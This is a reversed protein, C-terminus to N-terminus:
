PEFWSSVDAHLVEAVRGGTTTAESPLDNPNNVSLGSSLRLIEARETVSQSARMHPSYAAELTVFHDRRRDNLQQIREADSNCTM